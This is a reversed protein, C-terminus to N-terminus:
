RITVELRTDYGLPSWRGNDILVMADNEYTIVITVHESDGLAKLGPHFTVGQAFVTRPKSGVMWSCLDLDHISADSFIGASISKDQEENLRHKLFFTM